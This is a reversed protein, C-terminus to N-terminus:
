HRYLSTREVPVCQLSERLPHTEWFTRHLFLARDMAEYPGNTLFLYEKKFIQNKLVQENMQRRWTGIIADVSSGQKIKHASIYGELIDPRRRLVLDMHTKSDAPGNPDFQGQRAIERDNLGLIDIHVADVVFPLEGGLSSAIVTNSDSIQALWTLYANPPNHFFNGYNRIGQQISTVHQFTPILFLPYNVLVIMGVWVMFRIRRASPLINVIATSFLLALFPLLQVIQRWYPFAAYNDGGIRVIYLLYGCCFVLLYLLLFNGRIGKKRISTVCLGGAILFLFILGKHYFMWSWVYRIGLRIHLMGGGSVKAYYTNPLFDSFIVLRFATLGLFASVIIGLVLLTRKTSQKQHKEHLLIVFNSTIAFLLGEPRMLVVAIGAVAPLLLHPTLLPSLLSLAVLLMFSVTEMGTTAYWTVPLYFTFMLASYLFIDRHCNLPTDSAAIPTKQLIPAYLFLLALALHSLLGLIKSVSIIDFQLAEAIALLLMWLFTTSGEVREGTTNWAGFGYGEALHQSYRFTIYADELTHSYFLLDLGIISLFIIVTFIAMELRQPTKHSLGRFSDSTNMRDKSALM